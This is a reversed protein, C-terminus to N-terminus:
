RFELSRVIGDAGAAGVPMAQFEIRVAIATRPGCQLAQAAAIDPILFTRAADGVRVHLRALKGQCEISELVGEVIPPGLTQSLRDLAAM